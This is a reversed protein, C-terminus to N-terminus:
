RRAAGAPGRCRAPGCGPAPRPPPRSRRRSPAAHGRSRGRRRGVGRRPASRAPRARRRGAEAGAAATAAVDYDRHALGLFRYELTLALGPVAPISLASGIIAQYALAGATDDGAIRPFGTAANYVHFDHLNAWQYGVGVGIYPAYPIPIIGTLDYLVNFMAGYKQENGGAAAPFGLNRGQSFRNNRYDGEIELRLGNGLAYGLSVVTAFGPRARLAADTAIGSAGVLHEDQLWNVGAGAGIYLGQLPQVSRGSWDPMWSGQAHACFPVLTVAAAALLAHRLKM